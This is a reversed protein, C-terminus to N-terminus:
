RKYVGLRGDPTQQIVFKTAAFLASTAELFPFSANAMSISGFVATDDSFSISSPSIDTHVGKKDGLTTIAGFSALVNQGERIDVSDPDILVNRTDIGHITTDSAGSLDAVMLGGNEGSEFKLFSNAVKSADDIDSAVDEPAPTWSTCKTGEELMIGCVEIYSGAPVDSAYVYGASYSSAQDGGLVLGEASIYQWNTNLTMSIYKSNTTQSSSIWIPQISVNSSFEASARIWCGMSYKKGAIFRNALLDQAIGIRAASSGTNTCRIGGSVGAIPPTSIDIHSVTGGSARWGKDGSSVAPMTGSNYLLNRGGVEINDNLYESQNKGGITVSNAISGSNVTLDSAILAGATTVKFNSGISLGDTGIYFGNATSALTSHSGSYISANATNDGIIIKNQANNGIIGSTAKIAGSIHAENAYLNGESDVGFKSGIVARWNTKPTGSSPTPVLSPIASGLDESSIYVSNNDGIKGNAPIVKIGGKSLVLGNANLTALEDTGNSPNYFTLANNTLEMTKNDNNFGYFALSNVAGNTGLSIAKKQQTSTSPYYFFLNSTTLKMLDIANYRLNIGGTSIWTNLGYTNSNSRNISRTGGSLIGSAIYSGAPYVPITGSASKSTPNDWIYGQKLGLDVFDQIDEEAQITKNYAEKAVKYSSSITPTSYDWTRDSYITETLEYLVRDDGVTYSPETDSWGSYGTQTYTPPTIGYNSTSPAAASSPQLLFYKKTESIVKIKQLAIQNLIIRSM